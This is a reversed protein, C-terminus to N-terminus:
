SKGFLTLSVVRSISPSGVSFNEVNYDCQDSLKLHFYKGKYLSNFGIGLISYSYVYPTLHVLMCVLACACVNMCRNMFALACWYM